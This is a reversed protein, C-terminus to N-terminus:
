SIKEKDYIIHTVYIEKGNYFYYIDWFGYSWLRIGEYIKDQRKGDTPHKALKEFICNQLEKALWTEDKNKQFENIHRHLNITIKSTTYISKTKAKNSKEFLWPELINTDGEILEKKADEIQSRLKKLKELQQDEQSNLIFDWPRYRPYMKKNLM